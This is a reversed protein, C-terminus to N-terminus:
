RKPPGKKRPTNIYKLMAEAESRKVRLYPLIRPITTRLAVNKVQWRYCYITTPCPTKSRRYRAPVVKHFTIYGGYERQLDFIINKDMMGVMLVPRIGNRRNGSPMKDHRKGMHFCGEGDIIGAFYADMTSMRYVYLLLHPYILGERDKKGNRGQSQRPHRM